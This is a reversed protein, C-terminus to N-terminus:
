AGSYSRQKERQDRSAARFITGGLHVVGCEAHGRVSPWVWGGFSQNKRKAMLNRIASHLHNAEIAANPGLNFWGTEELESGVKRNM